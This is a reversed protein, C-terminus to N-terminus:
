IRTICLLVIVYVWVYEAARDAMTYVAKQKKRKLPLLELIWWPRSLELQDYMPSLADKLEEHAEGKFPTRPGKDQKLGKAQNKAHVFWNRFPSGVLWWALQLPYIMFKAIDTAAAVLVHRAAQEATLSQVIDLPGPEARPPAELVQKREFDVDMGLEDRLMDMDFILGTEARFCERVMWRLPIRAANVCILM